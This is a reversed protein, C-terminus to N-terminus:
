LRRVRRPMPAGLQHKNLVSSQEATTALPQQNNLTSIYGSYVWFSPGFLSPLSVNSFALQALKFVTIPYHRSASVPHHRLHLPQEPIGVPNFAISIYSFGALIRYLLSRSLTSPQRLHIEIEPTSDPQNIQLLWFKNQAKAPFLPLTVIGPGITEIMEASQGASHSIGWLVVAKIGAFLKLRQGKASSCTCRILLQSFSWQLVKFSLLQGLEKSCNEKDNRAYTKKGELDNRIVRKVTESIIIVLQDGENDAVDELIDLERDEEDHHRGPGKVVFVWDLPEWRPVCVIDVANEKDATSRSSGTGITWHAFLDPRSGDRFATFTSRMSDTAYEGPWPANKAQLPHKTQRANSAQHNTLVRHYVDLLFGLLRVYIWSTTEASLVTTLLSTGHGSLSRMGSNTKKVEFKKKGEVSKSGSAEGKKAVPRM